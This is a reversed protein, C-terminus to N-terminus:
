SEEEGVSELYTRLSVRRSEELWLIYIPKENRLTDIVPGIESNPMHGILIPTALSLDSLEDQKMWLRQPTYFRIEAAVGEIEESFLIVKAMLDQDESSSNTGLFEIYYKNIKYCIENL